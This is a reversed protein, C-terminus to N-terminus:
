MSSGGALSLCYIEQIGAMKCVGAVADMTRGTTYIDDILLVRRLKVDNESIIFAKKLNNERQGPNEWKLPNTNKIRKVLKTEVPIGLRRGIEEALVRAQNYGRMKQRAHHLPIPIIVQPAIMRVYDGLQEAMQQGFFVGYEKRGGYKFRYIADSVAEYQYLIRGQTFVHLREKCDRCFCSETLLKRGCKGCFPVTIPQLREFCTACIREGAPAVIDDCIPCRLPFLLQLIMDWVKRLFAFRECRVNRKGMSINKKIM